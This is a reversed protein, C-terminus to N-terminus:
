TNNQFYYKYIAQNLLTRYKELLCDSNIKKNLIKETM